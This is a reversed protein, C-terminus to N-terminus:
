RGGRVCRAYVPYVANATASQSGDSFSVASLLCNRDSPNMSSVICQGGTSSLYVQDYVTGPFVTADFAPSGRRHDAISRLEKWNPLRWDTKGAWSLGECTSLWDAWYRGVATGTDCDRGTIGGPCGQWVLGTVNDMVVPQDSVSTDRTFRAGHLTEGGRVCRVPEEYAKDFTTGTFTWAFAAKGAATSSSWYFLGSLHSAPFATRDVNSAIEVISDLEYPDPLHWDRYGAWVLRDCTSVASPWDQKGMTGQSCDSGHLGVECGQWMLGTVNDIVLPEDALSLERTYRESSAHSTDWGYQADQGYLATGAAPCEITGTKEDSCTRQGTDALPFHSGSVNCSAEGCGPSACIGGMCIDYKRDPVTVVTCPTFDPQGTCSAVPAIDSAVDLRLLPTDRGSDPGPSASDISASDGLGGDPAPACRSPCGDPGNTYGNPCYLNTLVCTSSRSTGGTGGAGGQATGGTGGPGSTGGTSGGQVSDSVVGADPVLLGADGASTGGGASGATGGVKGVSNSHDCSAALALWGAVILAQYKM